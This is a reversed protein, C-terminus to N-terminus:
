IAVASKKRMWLIMGGMLFGIVAILNSPLEPIVNLGGNGNNSGSLRIDAQNPPGGFKSLDGMNLDAMLKWDYTVNLLHVQFPDQNPLNLLAAIGWSPVLGNNPSLNSIAGFSITTGGTYFDLVSKQIATLSVSTDVLQLEPRDPGFFSDTDSWLVYKGDLTVAIAETHAGRTIDDVTFGPSVLYDDERLATNTPSVAGVNISNTYYVTSGYVGNPSWAIDRIYVDEREGQDDVLLWKNQNVSYIGFQTTGPLVNSSALYIDRDPDTENIAMRYFPGPVPKSFEFEGTDYNYYRIENYNGITVMFPKGDQDIFAASDTNFSGNTAPIEAAPTPPISYVIGDNGAFVFPQVDEAYVDQHSLLAVSFLLFLSHAFFCAVKGNRKGRCRVSDGMQVGKLKKGRQKGYNTKEV